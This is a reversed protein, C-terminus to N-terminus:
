ALNAVLERYRRSLKRLLQFCLEPEHSLAELYDHESVFEFECDSVTRLGAEFPQGSLMETLGFVEGRDAERVAIEGEKKDNAVLLAQGSLLTLVGRATDGVSFVSAGKVYSRQRTLSALAGEVRNAFDNYLSAM